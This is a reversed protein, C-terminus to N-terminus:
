SEKWFWGKFSYTTEEEARSKKKETEGMPLLYILLCIKFKVIAFPTYQLSKLTRSHM